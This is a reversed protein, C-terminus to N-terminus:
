TLVALIVGLNCCGGVILDIPMYELAFARRGNKRHEKVEAVACLGEIFEDPLCSLDIPEQPSSSAVEMEPGSSRKQTPTEKSSAVCENPRGPSASLVSLTTGSPRVQSQSVPAGRLVHGGQLVM